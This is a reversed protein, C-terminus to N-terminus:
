TPPRFRQTLPSRSREKPPVAIDEISAFFAELFPAVRSKELSFGGAFDHGGFNLFEGGHRAFFDEIVHDRNCRISGIATDGNEAIVIAPTKFFGQLRSAMIGTIGRQIREDHVLVCRGGTKDLSEKAQGMMLNWTSEGMTRRKTDLSFLQEGLPDAEEATQALLLRTATAPEGMRGASNLVPSVQWAIDTTGIRKGLLDKRKFIHRLGNRQSARLHSLGLRVMIRNEDCLPMLDALTGLTVLDLRKLAPELREKERALVLATFTEKLTDIETKQRTAYRADRSSQQMKILSKGAQAPLFQAVLPGIDSLPLEIEPGFVKLLLRAQLPADLM